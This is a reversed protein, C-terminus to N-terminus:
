FNYDDNHNNIYAKLSNILSLSNLNTQNLLDLKEKWKDSEFNTVPYMDHISIEFYREPIYITASLYGLFIFKYKLDVIEIKLKNEKITFIYTQFCTTTTVGEKPNGWFNKIDKRHSVDFNGKLIIKGSEFDKYHLVHSISGFNIASWELIREFIIKKSIQNDIIYEFKIKRSLSDYPLVPYGKIDDIMLRWDSAYQQYKEISLEGNQYRNFINDKEINETQSISVLSSFCTILILLKKM